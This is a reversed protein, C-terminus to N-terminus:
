APARLTELYASAARFFGQITPTDLTAAALLFSGLLASVLFAAEDSAIINPHVTGKAQGRELLRAVADRWESLLAPVEELGTKEEEGAEAALKALMAGPPPEDGSETEIRELEDHLMGGLRTLVDDDGNTTEIPEIWRRRWEPAVLEGVVAEALARKDRFHHFLAGKTVGAARVIHNLSGARYGNRAFEERAADLIRRRTAKPDRAM